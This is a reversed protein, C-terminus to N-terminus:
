LLLHKEDSRDNDGPCLIIMGGPKLVRELESRELEMMDSFVHGGM